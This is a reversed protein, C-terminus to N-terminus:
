FPLEEEDSIVDSGSTDAKAAVKKASSKASGKSSQGASGSGDLDFEMVTVQLWSRKEGTKSTYAENTVKGNKIKVRDGASVLGDAIQQKAKSIAVGNWNSNHYNGNQDKESSSIQIKTRKEEPEVKWIKIYQDKIFFM